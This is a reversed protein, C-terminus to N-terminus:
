VCARRIGTTSERLLVFSKGSLSAVSVVFAVCAVKADVMELVKQLPIVLWVAMSSSCAEVGGDGDGSGVIGISTEGLAGGM